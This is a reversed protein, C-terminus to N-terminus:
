RSIPVTEDFILFPSSGAMGAAKSLLVRSTDPLSGSLFQAFLSSYVADPRVSITARAFEAGPLAEMEFSVTEDVGIRTDSLEVWVGSRNEVKRAVLWSMPSGEVARGDAQLQTIEVVVEPTVYTPFHHGAGNNRLRLGVAPGELWEISLASRVM